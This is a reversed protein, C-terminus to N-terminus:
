AVTANVTGTKNSVRRVSDRVILNPKLVIKRPETRSQGRIQDLLLRVAIEGMNEKPQAVVTIPCRFYAAAEIDDFAVISIDDPVVLGEEHIAELAGLTILDSTTFVATPPDEHKLLLKMEVYGNEKRFDNGVILSEDVPIEHNALADRYGMLRGATTLTDPLGQIIGIRRHGNNILHEVAEYAGRYNDIGVSSARLGEFSRDVVVLPMGNHKVSELHGSKQGVPLIILGDIGKSTLLSTHEVEQALDENTDCVVLSYGSQHAENQVSKVIYAFFPNSLDPVILGITHTKKLRLGQALQNPRYSLEKAAKLIRKETEKAIRYKATKKNLVRSVTSVSTRSRRAIDHLTVTM